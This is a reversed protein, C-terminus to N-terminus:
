VDVADVDIRHEKLTKRCEALLWSTNKRREELEKRKALWETKKKEMAIVQAEAKAM